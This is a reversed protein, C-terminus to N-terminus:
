GEDEAGQCEAAHVVEGGAWGGEEEGEECVVVGCDWRGVAIFDRGPGGGDWGEMWNGMGLADLSVFGCDKRREM